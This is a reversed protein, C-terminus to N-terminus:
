PKLLTQQVLEAGRSEFLIVWSKKPDKAFLEEFQQKMSEQTEPQFIRDRTLGARLAGRILPESFHPDTFFAYDVAKGVEEGLEEHVATSHDGLELIGPFFIVKQHEDFHQLHLLASRLGTPNVNYSDDIVFGKSMNKMVMTKEPSALKSVAKVIQERKMGLHEAVVIAMLVNIIQFRGILPVSYPVEHYSFQVSDRHVQINKAVATELALPVKKEEDLFCGIMRCPAKQLRSVLEGCEGNVVLLGDAPLATALEYKAQFTKDLGGFLAAHQENLGTLV